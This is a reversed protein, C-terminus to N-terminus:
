LDLFDRIWDWSQYARKGIKFVTVAVSLMRLFNRM